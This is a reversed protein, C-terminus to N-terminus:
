LQPAATAGSHHIRPAMPRGTDGIDLIRTKRDRGTKVVIRGDPRIRLEVAGDRDTRHLLTRREEYTRVIERHPMDYRNRYGSSIVAISPDVAAVFAASSSSRSGHHPVKLVTSRLDDRHAVLVREGRSELDGPLLVAVNGYSLRLTLSHDNSRQRAAASPHHVEVTVGDIRRSSGRVAVLAPIDRERLTALLASYRTGTARAGTHWLEGPQFHRAIYSLGGYHDFDPHSLVM